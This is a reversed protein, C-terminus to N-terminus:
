KKRFDKVNINYKNIKLHVAERSIGLLAAAKSVNGRTNMLTNQIKIKNIEAMDEKLTNDVSIHLTSPIDAYFEKNKSYTDKIKILENAEIADNDITQLAMSIYASLERVNGYWEQNTLYEIASPTFYKNRIYKKNYKNTSHQTIYPIDEKHSNLPPIHIECEKLRHYLQESFLDNNTMEPLDKITTSIFRVNPCDLDPNTNKKLLMNQIPFLLQQQVSVSLKDIGDLLITGNNAEQFISNDYNNNLNPIDVVTLKHTNRTSLKHLLNAILKKGTGTKGTILVNLDTNAIKIINNALNKIIKSKGIIGHQELFKITNEDYESNPSLITDIIGKIQVKTLINKEIFNVAGLKTARVATEITGKGTIMVVPITPHNRRFIDLLDLGNLKEVFGFEVDLLILDINKGETAMYNIAENPTNISEADVGFSRVIDAITCNFDVSDDVILVKM